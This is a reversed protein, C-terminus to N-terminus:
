IGQSRLNKIEKSSMKFINKGNFFIEGSDVKAQRALIQAISNVTTTKGCGSEGVISVKEGRRVQMNVGNLVKLYGKFTRFSVHLGKVDVVNESNNYKEM